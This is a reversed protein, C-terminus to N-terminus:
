HGLENIYEKIIDIIYEQETLKITPYSPIMIIEKNLKVPIDNTFHHKLKKLHDHEWYPYFFPRIDIGKNNFYITMEDYIKNNNHIRLAFMWDARITDEEIKQISVINKDILDKLLTEYNEFVKRKNKLITDIDNLQDYLFGAQINTMRYNYALINHIYKKNSMGQSYVKNIYEYITNDNTAFAGGEGTTITKNGYFSM